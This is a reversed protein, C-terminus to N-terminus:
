SGENSPRSVDTGPMKLYVVVQQGCGLSSNWVGSMSLTRNGATEVQKMHPRTVYASKVRDRGVFVPPSSGIPPALYPHSISRTCGHVLSSRAIEAWSQHFIQRSRGAGYSM